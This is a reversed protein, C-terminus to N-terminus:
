LEARLNRREARATQPTVGLGAVQRSVACLDVTREEFLEDGRVGVFVDDGKGVLGDEAVIRDNDLVPAQDNRGDIGAERDVQRGIVGRV